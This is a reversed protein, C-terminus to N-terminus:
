PGAPPSRSGSRSPEQVPSPDGLGGEPDIGHPEGFRRRAIDCGNGTAAIKDTVPEFRSPRRDARRKGRCKNPAGHQDNVASVVTDTAVVELSSDDCRNCAGAIPFRGPVATGGNGGGEVPRGIDEDVPAPLTKMASSLPCRIRIISAAVATMVVM